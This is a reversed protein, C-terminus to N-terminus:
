DGQQQDQNQAQDGHRLFSRGLSVLVLGVDEDGETLFALLM